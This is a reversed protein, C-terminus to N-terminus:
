EKEFLIHIWNPRKRGFLKCSKNQFLNLARAPLCVIWKLPTIAPRVLQEGCHVCREEQDYTGYPYGCLSYLWVSLPNTVSEEYGAYRIECPRMNKSFLGVLREKDFASLHGTTPNVGGCRACRTRNARLDQRFPVGIVAYRRTVRGIEDCAKPLLHPPIHELVETCFVTDFSNDPFALETVDGQVPVIGPHDISPRTLDLAVVEGCLATLRRSIYCDRAGIELVRGGPPTLTMLDAVRLQERKSSRSRAIDFM